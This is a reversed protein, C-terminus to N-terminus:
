FKRESSGRWYVSGELTAEIFASGNATVERFSAGTCDSGFLDANLLNLGHKDGRKRGLYADRLNCRQLDASVLTHAYRLGDALVKQFLGSQTQRLVGAIVEVTERTYPAGGVGQETGSDFFRRFLVVAAM